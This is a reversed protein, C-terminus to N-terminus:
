DGDLVKLRRLAGPEFRHLQSFRSTQWRQEGIPLAPDTLTITGYEVGGFYNPDGDGVDLGGSHAYTLTSGEIAAVVVVHAIGDHGMEYIMDGVRLQAVDDFVLCSAENVLRKVNVLRRPEQWGWDGAV